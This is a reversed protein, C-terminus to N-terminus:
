NFLDPEKQRQLILETLQSKNMKSLNRGESLGISAAHNVLDDHKLQMLSEKGEVSQFSHGATDKAAEATLESFTVPEPDEQKPEAVPEAVEMPKFHKPVKEGESAVLVAGRQYVRSRHQCATACRFRDGENCYYFGDKFDAM